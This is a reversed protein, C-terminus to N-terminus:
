SSTSAAPTPTQIPIPIPIPVAISLWGSSCEDEKLVHLSGFKIGRDFKHSIQNGVILFLRSGPLSKWKWQWDWYSKMESQLMSKSVEIRSKLVRTIETAPSHEWSIYNMAASSKNKQNGYFHFTETRSNSNRNGPSGQEDMYNHKPIGTQRRSVSLPFGLVTSQDLLCIPACTFEPFFHRHRSSLFAVV